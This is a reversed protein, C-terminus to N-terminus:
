SCQVGNFILHYLSFINVLKDQNKYIVLVKKAPRFLGVWLASCPVLHHYLVSTPLPSM